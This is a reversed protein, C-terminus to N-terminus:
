VILMCDGYSFFRYRAAVAERYAALIRERGALAAVMMLLTSRPLHFNTLMMDTLRFAYPEHIFLRSRGSCSVAEGNHEAAMTELTRVSTSGVALIRGGRHRCDRIAAATAEPVRYREAHMVHDELREVQVPRFTGLGVHLTVSAIGVGKDRLTDLVTSTFHLGATPAAVAGTERAYVTQYRALDEARQAAEPNEPRAIYPPLPTRGHQELLGWIPARGSLRVQVTGEGVGPGEIEAEIEGEGLAARLGPRKRRGSGCLAEWRMTCAEPGDLAGTPPALPELLLFEVKGGTDAWRGQLRAPFVRTDNVVVLDGARLYAPLDAFSGHRLSGDRRDLVLMRASAREAPPHQAIREPPLLYDYDSTLLAAAGAPRRCDATATPLRCNSSTPSWEKDGCKTEVSQRSCKTEVSQRWVKDFAFSPRSPTSSVLM